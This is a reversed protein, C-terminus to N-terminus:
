DDLPGQTLWRRLSRYAAERADPRSLFVDHVAGEVRAITINPGLKTAVRAVDDVNVVSDTSLMTDNWQLTLTSARSMIVFVPCDIAVGQAITAHGSLVGALWGPKTLFGRDPRWLARQELAPLSGLETQARTYFGFDVEPNKGMPDIKALAQVLPALAQRGLAGIQLELWPANLVLADARGPHRAAWLSLTLGGTSHGMLVLRRGPRPQMVALAASIDTDYEDLSAVYGPTQGERLSRGYKRLDLAYFRAGLDAWFDALETQFFFDSWGHVYLVDVGHLPRFPEALLHPKHRVLTAVVPGEADEGLDLTTQEYGRGLVDAVWEAM